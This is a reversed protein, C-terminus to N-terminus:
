QDRPIGPAGSFCSHERSHPQLQPTEMGSVGIFETSQSASSTLFTRIRRTELQHDAWPARALARPLLHTSLTGPLVPPPTLAGPDGGVQGVLAWSAPRQPDKRPLIPSHCGRSDWSPSPRPGATPTARRHATSLLPRPKTIPPTRHHATSLSLRPEITPTTQRRATSLPPRPKAIPEEVAGLPPEQAYCGCRRDGFGSTPPGEPRSSPEAVHGQPSPRWTWARGAPAARSGAHRGGPPM